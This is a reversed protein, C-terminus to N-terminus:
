RGSRGSPDSSRNGPRPASLLWTAGVALVTLAAFRFAEDGVPLRLPKRGDLLLTASWPDKDVHRGVRLDGVAPVDTIWTKGDITVTLIEQNSDAVVGVREVRGDIRYPILSRAFAVSTQVIGVVLM